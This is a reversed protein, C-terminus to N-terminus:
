SVKRLIYSHRLMIRQKVMSPLIRTLIKDLKISLANSFPFLITTNYGVVKLDAQDFAKELKRKNIFRHPGESHNFGVVATVWHIPEWIVNPCTVIMVGDDTLHNSLTKIFVGYDCVHEVTEYCLILDFKTSLNFETTLVKIFDIRKISKLRTKAKKLLGDSFDVCTFNAKLLKSSWFKTGRGSRTQIDLVNSIDNYDLQISKRLLDESNTFRRFYPYLKDNIDDYDEVTDWFKGVDYLSWPSVTYYEYEEKIRAVWGIKNGMNM